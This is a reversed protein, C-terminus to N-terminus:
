QMDDVVEYLLHCGIALGDGEERTVVLQPNDTIQNLPDFLFTWSVVVEYLM